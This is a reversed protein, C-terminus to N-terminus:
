QGPRPPTVMIHARHTGPDMIWPDGPNRPQLPLGTSEPTAYPIYIVYRYYADTVQGTEPDFKGNDGSLIHLTAAQAPMELKGAKVEDERIQFIEDSSKGEARLERGRAMFPQLDKHYCAVNFGSQEPDDALCIIDNAGERLTVLEGKENYGMVAAGERMDEPAAMVAAGIQGDKDPIESQAHCATFFPLLLFPLLIKIHHM